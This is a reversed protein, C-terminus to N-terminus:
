RTVSGAGLNDTLQCIPESQQERNILSVLRDRAVLITGHDDLPQVIPRERELKFVMLGSDHGAAFLNLSPHM